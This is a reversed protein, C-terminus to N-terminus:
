RKRCEAAERAFAKKGTADMHAYLYGRAACVQEAHRDHHKLAAVAGASLLGVMMGLCAIGPVFVAKRVCSVIWGRLAAM